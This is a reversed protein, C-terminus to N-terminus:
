AASKSFLRIVIVGLVILGLGAVAPWDLKQQFLFLGVLSIIVIGVGSWIGYAIGMPITRLALSLAWFAVGYGAVVIATPIPKSFGESAKLASTGMVEALIAVTLYAWNM